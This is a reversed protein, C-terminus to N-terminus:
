DSVYLGYGSDDTRIQTSTAGIEKLKARLRYIHTELTHTNLAEGYGWIDEHLRGRKVMQNKNSYLYEALRLERETLTASIGSVPNLMLQQTPRIVCDHAIKLPTVNNKSSFWQQLTELVTLIAVPKPLTRVVNIYPLPTTFSKNKLLIVPTEAHSEEDANQGLLNAASDDLLILEAAGRQWQAKLDRPTTVIAISYPLHECIAAMTEPYASIALITNKLPKDTQQM